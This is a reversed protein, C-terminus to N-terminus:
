VPVQRKVLTHNKAKETGFLTEIPNTINDPRHIHNTKNNEYMSVTAKICPLYSTMNEGVFESFDGCPSYSIYYADKDKVTFRFFYVSVDSSRV